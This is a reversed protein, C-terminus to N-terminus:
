APAIQSVIHNLRDRLAHRHDDVALEAAALDRARAPFRAVDHSEVVDLRDSDAGIEAAADRGEGPDLAPSCDLTLGAGLRISSGSRPHDGIFELRRTTPASM